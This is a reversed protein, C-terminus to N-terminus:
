RMTTAPTSLSTKSSQPAAAFSARLPSCSRPCSPVPVESASRFFLLLSQCVQAHSGNRQCHGNATLALNIACVCPCVSIAPVSEGCVISGIITGNCRALSAAEFRSGGGVCLHQSPCAGWNGQWSSAATLPRAVAKPPQHRQNGDLKVHQAPAPCRYPTCGRSMAPRFGVM